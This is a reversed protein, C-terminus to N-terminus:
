QIKVIAKTIFLYGHNTNSYFITILIHKHNKISHQGTNLGCITPISTTSQGTTTQLKMQIFYILFFICFLFFFFFSLFNSVTVKFTDRSCSGGSTGPATTSEDTGSPGLLTFSEFDLRLFCVDSLKM